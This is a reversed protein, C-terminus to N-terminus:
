SLSSRDGRHPFVSVSSNYATSGVGGEAARSLRLGNHPRIMANLHNSPAIGANTHDPERHRHDGRRGDPTPSRASATARERSSWSTAAVLWSIWYPVPSGPIPDGFVGTWEAFALNSLRGQEFSRKGFWAVQDITAGKNGFLVCHPLIQTHLVVGPVIFFVSLEFCFSIYRELLDYKMNFCAMQQVNDLM